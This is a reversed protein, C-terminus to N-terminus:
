TMDITSHITDSAKVIYLINNYNGTKVLYETTYTTGEDNQLYEPWSFFELFNHTVSVSKWRLATLKCQQKGQGKRSLCVCVCM